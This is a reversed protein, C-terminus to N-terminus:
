AHGERTGDATGPASTAQARRGGRRGAMASRGAALLISAGARARRREPYAARLRYGDREIVDLVWEFRAIYAHGALRCRPNAVLRLARRGDAFCARALEVRQRVWDTLEGADLAARVDRDPGLVELPVNIYGADLDAVLDRLLHAVHAGRVAVYRLEATPADEGHGICTHLAETVAVALRDTCADLEAATSRGGRRAADIAMVDHMATLSARVEGRDPRPRGDPGRVLGVLLEEDPALGEPALGELAGPAPDAECAEALLARQREVLALRADRDPLREDVEDDLWRFYAYLAYADARRARDALWRITLYSQRSAARVAVAVEHPSRQVM